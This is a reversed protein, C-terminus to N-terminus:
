IAIESADIVPWAEEYCCGQEKDITKWASEIRASKKQQEINPKERCPKYNGNM